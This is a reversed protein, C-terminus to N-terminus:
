RWSCEGSEAFKKSKGCIDQPPFGSEPKEADGYPITKFGPTAPGFCSCSKPDSSFGVLTTTRGHFNNSAVLIVAQNKPIKKVQYGWLRMSKIATEVAEAGSNMLLAKDMGTLECLRRLLPGM